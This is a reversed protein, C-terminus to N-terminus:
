MNAVPLMLMAMPEQVAKVAAMQAMVKSFVSDAATIITTAMTIPTTM